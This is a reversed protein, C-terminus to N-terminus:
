DQPRRRLWASHIHNKMASEAGPADRRVIADFVARHEDLSARLDDSSSPRSFRNNERARLFVTRTMSEALMNRSAKMVLLHFDLDAANFPAEDHGADRMRGLSDVLDSLVRDDRLTATLGAMAGELAARVTTLDDLIGTSGDNALLASLVVPDLVNWHTHHRVMTGRGHEVSVLGKEEIRKISERVVTRSVGFSESLAAETPLPTGPAFHGSTIAAVLDDVVTVGLRSASLRVPNFTSESAITSQEELNSM